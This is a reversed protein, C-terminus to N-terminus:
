ENLGFQNSCLASVKNDYILGLVTRPDTQPLSKAEHSSKQDQELFRNLMKVFGKWDLM